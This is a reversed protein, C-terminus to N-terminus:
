PHIVLVLDRRNRELRLTWRHEGGNLVEFHEHTFSGRGSVAGNNAQLWESLYGGIPLHNVESRILPYTKPTNLKALDVQVRGSLRNEYGRDRRTTHIPTVRDAGFEFRLMGGARLEILPAQVLRAGDSLILFSPHQPDGGGVQLMGIGQFRHEIAGGRLVRLSGQYAPRGGQGVFVSHARLTAGESIDVHVRGPVPASGMFSEIRVVGLELDFDPDLIAPNGEPTKDARFGEIEAMAGPFPDWNAPNSWLNDAGAGNFMVEESVTLAPVTLIGLAFLFKILRSTNM